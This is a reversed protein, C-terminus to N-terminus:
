APRQHEYWQTPFFFSSPPNRFCKVFPFRFVSCCILLSPYQVHSRFKVPQFTCSCQCSENPLFVGFVKKWKKSMFSLKALLVQNFFFSFFLLHGRISLVFHAFLLILHHSYRWFFPNLGEFLYVHMRGKCLIRLLVESPPSSLRQFYSM